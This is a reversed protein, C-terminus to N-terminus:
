CVQATVREQHARQEPTWWTRIYALIADVDAEDLTGAFAPMPPTDPPLGPRPPLGELTVAVLECDGHHWTHGAANHPPPIDAIDGGEAGGHCAICHTDYLEEGRAVDAGDPVEGPGFAACGALAVAAALAWSVAPRRRRATSSMLVM